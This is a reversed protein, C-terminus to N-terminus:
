PFHLEFNSAEIQEPHIQWHALIDYQSSLSDCDTFESNDYTAADLIYVDFTEHEWCKGGARFEEIGGTNITPGDLTCGGNLNDFLYAVVISNASDNRVILDAHCPDRECKCFLLPLAVVVFVLPEWRGRTIIIKNKM